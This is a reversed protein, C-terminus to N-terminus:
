IHFTSARFKQLSSVCFTQFEVFPFCSFEHFTVLSMLLFWGAVFARSNFSKLCFNSLVSFLCTQVRFNCFMLLNKFIPHKLHGNWLFPNPHGCWVRIPMKDRNLHVFKYQFAYLSEDVWNPVFALEPGTHDLAPFASLTQVCVAFGQSPLLAKSMVAVRWATCCLSFFSNDFKQQHQESRSLVVSSHLHPFPFM